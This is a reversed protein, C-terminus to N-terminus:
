YKEHGRHPSTVIGTAPDYQFPENGVGDILLEKPLKLEDLSAPLQDDNNTKWLEIAQRVQGLRERTVADQAAAKVAGPVTTGKGDPRSSVPAEGPKRLMGSGFMFASALLLIIVLTVMTAILTNGRRPPKM